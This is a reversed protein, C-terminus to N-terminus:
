TNYKPICHATYPTNSHGMFFDTALRQTFQQCLSRSLSLSQTHTHTHSLSFPVCVCLSLSMVCLSFDTVSSRCWAYTHNIELSFFLCRRQALVTKSKILEVHLASRNSSAGFLLACIEHIHGHATTHLSLRVTLLVSLSLSLCISLSLFLRLCYPESVCFYISLSTATGYVICYNYLLIFCLSLCVSVSLRVSVPLSFSMHNAVGDQTCISLAKLSRIRTKDVLREHDFILLSSLCM